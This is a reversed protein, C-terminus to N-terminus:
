KKRILQWLEKDGKKIFYLVFGFFIFIIAVYRLLLYNYLVNCLIMYLISICIIVIFFKTDYWYTCKLKKVFCYHIVLLCFYGIMTTYAAAIYGFKPIFIFNLVINILAAVMTGIAINKQKKKYFEINVYLSYIFQFIYGVMVPPIVYKAQAYYDGGVILLLEPTVLMFGFVIFIFFITYTKSKTFLIEYNKEDMKSYAWPSWANNMSTWLISVVLSITYAVSYLANADASIFRTIMIKDAASLLYIASLHFVLPISIKLAYKWYKKSVKAQKIMMVYIIIALFIQPLYYGLLRGKLGLKFFYVMIISFFTSAIANIISFIVSAKYNYEIQSKLQFMQIAPYFLLFIFLINISLFDMIFLNEFFGHFLIVIGYFIATIITGLALTSSIYEKINDRYDFRAINLSSYLEVTVIISLINFWSTINSFLGIDSKTMIRTFIPLTLFALGKVFFNSITYIIGAKIVKNKSM